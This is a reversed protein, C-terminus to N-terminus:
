EQLAACASCLVEACSRGLSMTQEYAYEPDDFMTPELIYGFEDECLSVVARSGPPLLSRLRRGVEPCLEGPATLISLGGLTVRHVRSTVVGRDTLTDILGFRELWRFRPNENPLRLAASSYHLTAEASPAAGELEAGLQTAISQGMDVLFAERARLDDFPAHIDPTLMAGLPGSLYVLPADTSMSVAQRLPGVFDPSLATNRDWLGEPHSAYNLLTGIRRGEVDDLAAGVAVDYRAGGTRDNRSWRPEVDFEVHRLTAESAAEVAADVCGSVREVLSHMYAPNKGDSRPFLKLFSPGWYGITDPGSHTHTCTVIVASGAVRTVRERIANIWPSLLGILDLSVVVVETEASALYLASAELPMHVDTARRGM